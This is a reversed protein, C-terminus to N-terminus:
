GADEQRLARVVLWALFTAVLVAGLGFASRCVLESGFTSVFPLVVACERPGPGFAVWAGPVLLMAVTLVGLWLQARRSWGQALLALGGFVFTACAAYGVWAPVRLLEPHRYMQVAVVIGVVVAFSGGLTRGRQDGSSRPQSMRALSSTSLGMTGQVNTTPLTSADAIQPSAPRHRWLCISVFGFNM